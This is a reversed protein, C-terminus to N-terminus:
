CMVQSFEMVRGHYCDHSPITFLFAFFALFALLAILAKQGKQGGAGVERTSIKRAM